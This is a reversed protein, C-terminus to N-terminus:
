GETRRKGNRKSDTRATKEKKRRATKEFRRGIEAAAEEYTGPSEAALAKMLANAFGIETVAAMSCDGVGLAQSLEARLYHVPLLVTRRGGCAKEAKRRANDAADATLLLVKAKKGYREHFRNEKLLSYLFAGAKWDCNKLQELWQERNAADEYIQIDM